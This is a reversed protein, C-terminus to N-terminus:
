QFLFCLFGRQEVVGGLVEKLQRPTKGENLFHILSKFEDTECESRDGGLFREKRNEDDNFQWSLVKNIGTTFGNQDWCSANM